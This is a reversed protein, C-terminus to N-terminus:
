KLIRTILILLILQTSYAQLVIIWVERTFIRYANIEEGDGVIVFLVYFKHLASKFYSREEESPDTRFNFQM